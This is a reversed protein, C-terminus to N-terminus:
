PGDPPTVAHREAGEPWLVEVDLGRSRAYAVLRGTPDLHSSTSSGWVAVVRACVRLLREDIRACAARDAPDYELLRVQQSLLLLEGAALHEHERLLMPVLNVTPVVTVLALGAAKAARAFALPLGQGVRVWVWGARRPSGAM